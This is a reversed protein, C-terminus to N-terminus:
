RISPVTLMHIRHYLSTRVTPSEYSGGSIELFDIGADAIRHVQENFDEMSDGSFAQDVSNLKLGVIFDPSTAERIGKIIRVVVEVRKSASGGWADTRKNTLSSM